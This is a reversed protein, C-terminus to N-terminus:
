TIFRATVQFPATEWGLPAQMNQLISQKMNLLFLLDFLYIYITQIPITSFYILM